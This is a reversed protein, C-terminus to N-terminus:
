EAFFSRGEATLREVVELFVEDALVLGDISQGTLSNCLNAARLPLHSACRLAELAPGGGAVIDRAVAPSVMGVDDILEFGIINNLATLFKTGVIQQPVGSEVRQLVAACAHIYFDLMPNGQRFVCVANHVNRYVKFGGSKGDAQVWLERAFAFTGAPTPDFAEPDFILVDADIWAVVDADVRLADRVAILRALDTIVPMRGGARDRYWQPVLDLIEDGIFRYQWGATASWNRVSALCRDIWEPVDETRYSQIVLAQM